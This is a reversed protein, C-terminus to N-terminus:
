QQSDNTGSETNGDESKEDTNIEPESTPTPDSDSQEYDAETAPPTDNQVAANLDSEGISESSSPISPIHNEVFGQDTMFIPELLYEEKEIRLSVYHLGLAIQVLPSFILPVIVQDTVRFLIGDANVIGLVYGVASTIVLSCMLVVISALLNVGVTRWFRYFCLKFARIIPRFGTMNERVVVATTVTQVSILFILAIILFVCAAVLLLIGVFASIRYIIISFMITLFIFSVVIALIIGIYFLISCIHTIFLSKYKSAVQRLWEKPSFKEGLFYGVTIHAIGGQVLPTIFLSAVFTLITIWGPIMTAARWQRFEHLFDNMANIDDSRMLGILESINYDFSNADFIENSIFNALSLIGAFLLTFVAFSKFNRLYTSISRSFVKGSGMPEVPYPRHNLSFVEM